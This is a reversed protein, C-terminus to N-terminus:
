TLIVRLTVPTVLKPELLFGGSSLQEQVAEGDGDGGGAWCGARGTHLRVVM